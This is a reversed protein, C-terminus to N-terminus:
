GSPCTKWVILVPADTQALNELARFLGETSPSESKIFRFGLRTLAQSPGEQTLAVTHMAEDASTRPRVQVASVMAGTVLLRFEM